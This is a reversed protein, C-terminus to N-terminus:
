ESEDIEAYVLAPFTPVGLYRLAVYRHAGELIYPGENDVGVILPSIEQSEKIQEALSRSRRFDDAAYFVNKPEGFHSIPVERINPLIEYDNATAGISSMNPIDKRVILGSVTSGAVPYQQAVSLAKSQEITDTQAKVFWNM